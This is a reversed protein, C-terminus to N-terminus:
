ARRTRRASWRDWREAARPAICRTAPPMPRHMWSVTARKASTGNTASVGTPTTPPPVPSPTTFSLAAARLTVSGTDSAQAWTVILQQGASAAKYTLMYVVDYNGAGSLANVYDPASGDSLHAILRGASDTGGVYVYLTRQTTDAPVSIRFENGNGAVVVSSQDSGSIVPTGDSWTMARTYSAVQTAGSGSVSFNSIQAGGSAKHVYGPWKAWDVTGVATLNVNSSDCTVSGFLGPNAAAPREVAWLGATPELLDALYVKGNAVTPPLSSRLPESRTALLQDGFEVTRKTLDTADFARLM